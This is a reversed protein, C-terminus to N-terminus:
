HMMDYLVKKVDCQIVHQSAQERFKDQLNASEPFNVKFKCRELHLM